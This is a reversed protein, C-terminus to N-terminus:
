FDDPGIDSELKDSLRVFEKNIRYLKEIRNWLVNDLNSISVNKILVDVVRAIEKKKYKKSTCSNYRKLPEEMVVEIEKEEEQTILALLKIYNDSNFIFDEGKKRSDVCRWITDIIFIQVELNPQSLYTDKVVQELEVQATERPVEKYKNINYRHKRPRETQIEQHPEKEDFTLDSSRLPTYANFFRMSFPVDISYKLLPYIIYTLSLILTYSSPFFAALVKYELIRYKDKAHNIRKKIRYAQKADEENAYLNASGKQAKPVIEMNASHPTQNYMKIMHQMLENDAFKQSDDGFAYRITRIVSQVVRNHNTFKSDTFFSTIKHEQCFSKLISGIFGKEGDGGINTVHYNKVIIQLANKIQSASKDRVPFVVLYKTNINICFLYIQNARIIREDMSFVLDIEWSGLKPSFYPRSLKSLPKIQYDPPIEQIKDPSKGHLKKFHQKPALALCTTSESEINWGLMKKKDYYNDDSVSPFLQSYLQDRLKKDKIPWSEHAIALCLSDTDGYIVHIYDMDEGWRNRMRFVREKVGKYDRSGVIM